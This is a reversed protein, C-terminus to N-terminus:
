LEGNFHKELSDQLSAQTKSCLQSAAEQKKILGTMARGLSELEVSHYKRCLSNLNEQTSSINSQQSQLEKQIDKVKRLGECTEAQACSRLSEEVRALWATIDDIFKEVQTSQATFDKLTGKAEETIEKAHELKQRLDAEIFQLDPPTEPNKTLEKLTNVKSHLEELKLAKNKVESEFERLFEETKHSNNLNNINESLQPLSNNSWGEIEDKSSLVDEWISLGGRLRDISEEIKESVDLWKDVTGEMDTKVLAFDSSHVKKLESLLHKGKSTFNDLEKQKCNMENKASEHKSVAWKLDEQDKITTRTVIVSSASELVQSVTSKLNQYERMLDILGCCQGQSYHHFFM